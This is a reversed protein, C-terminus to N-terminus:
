GYNDKHSRQERDKSLQSQLGWALAPLPWFVSKAVVILLCCFASVLLLSWWRADFDRGAIRRRVAAILCGTTMLIYLIFPVIGFQHWMSLANHIYSGFDKQSRIYGGYDGFIPNAMIDKIGGIMIQWRENLSASSGINTYRTLLQPHFYGVVFLAVIFFMLLAAAAPLIYRRQSSAALWVMVVFMYGFLEARAGTYALALAGLVVVVVRLVVTTELALAFIATFAIANAFWAYSAVQGQFRWRLAQDPSLPDTAMVFPILVAMVVLSATLLHALRESPRLFYGAGYLSIWCILLKTSEFASINRDYP